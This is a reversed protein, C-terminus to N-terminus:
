VAMYRQPRTSTKRPLILYISRSISHKKKMSFYFGFQNKKLSPIVNTHRYDKTSKLSSDDVHPIFLSWRIAATFFILCHVFTHGILKVSIFFAITTTFNTWTRSNHHYTCFSTTAFVPALLRPLVQAVLTIRCLQTYLTHLCTSDCM